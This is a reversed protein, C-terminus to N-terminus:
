NPHSYAEPNDTHLVDHNQISKNFFIVTLHMFILKPKALNTKVNEIYNKIIKLDKM